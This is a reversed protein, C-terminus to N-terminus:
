FHQPWKGQLTKQLECLYKRWQWLSSGQAWEITVYARGIINITSGLITMMNRVCLGIKKLHMNKQCGDKSNCWVVVYWEFVNSRNLYTVLNLVDVKVKAGWRWSVKRSLRRSECDINLISTKLARWVCHPGEFHVVRLVVRWFAVGFQFHLRWKFDEIYNTWWLFWCAYPM